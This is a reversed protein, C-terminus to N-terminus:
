VNVTVFLPGDVALAGTTLSVNGDPKPDGDVEVDPQAIAKPTRVQVLASRASPSVNTAVTDPVAGADPDNDFVAVTVLVVASGVGPFLVDVSTVVTVACASRDITFVPGADTFAPPDIM